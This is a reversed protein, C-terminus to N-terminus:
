AKAVFISPTLPTKAEPQQYARVAIEPSVTEPMMQGLIHAGFAPEFWRHAAHRARREPREKRRRESSEHRRENFRQRRDSSAVVSSYGEIRM